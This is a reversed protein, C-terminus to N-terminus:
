LSGKLRKWNDPIFCHFSIGKADMNEEWFRSMIETYIIFTRMTMVYPLSVM